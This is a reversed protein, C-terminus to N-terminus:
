CMSTYTMFISKLLIKQQFDNLVFRVSKMVELRFHNFHSIFACYCFCESCVTDHNIMHNKLSAEHPFSLACMDCMVGDNLYIMRNKLRQHNLVIEELSRLELKYKSKLYDSIKEQDFCSSVNSLMPEDIGTPEDNVKVKVDELTFSSCIMEDSSDVISSLNNLNPDSAIETELFAKEEQSQTSEDTTKIEIKNCQLYNIQSTHSYVIYSGLEDSV